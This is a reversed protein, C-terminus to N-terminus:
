EPLHRWGSGSWRQDRDAERHSVAALDDPSADLGHERLTEAVELQDDGVVGRVVVGDLRDLTVRPRIPADPQADVGGVDAGVLVHIPHERLRVAPVEAPDAGVVPQLGAAKGRTHPCELALGLRDTNGGPERDMGGVAEGPVLLILPFKRGRRIRGPPELAHQPEEVGPVGLVVRDVSDVATASQIAGVPDLRHLPGIPQEAGLQRQHSRNRVQMLAQRVPGAVVRRAALACGEPPPEVRRPGLM